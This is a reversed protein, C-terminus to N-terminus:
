TLHAYATERCSRESATVRIPSKTAPNGQDSGRKEGIGSRGERCFPLNYTQDDRVKGTPHTTSDDHTAVKTVLPLPLDDGVNGVCIFRGYNGPAPDARVGSMGDHDSLLLEPDSHARGPEDERIGPQHDTGPDQHIGTDKGMLDPDEPHFPPDEDILATSDDVLMM